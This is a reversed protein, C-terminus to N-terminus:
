FDLLREVGDLWGEVEGFNSVVEFGHGLADFEKMTLRQRASLVGGRPRKLEVFRSRGGPLLVLRDPVGTTGPSVFKLARGGLRKVGRVLAEEVKQESVTM